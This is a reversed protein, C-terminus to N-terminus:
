SNKNRVQHPIQHIIKSEQVTKAKLILTINVECFSNPLAGEKRIKEFLNHLIPTLEEGFEVSFGDPSSSRKTFKLIVFEIDKFIVSSNM